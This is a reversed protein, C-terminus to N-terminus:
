STPHCRRCPPRQRRRPYALRIRHRKPMANCFPPISIQHGGSLYMCPTIPGEIRSILHIHARVYQYNRRRASVGYYCSRESAKTDPSRDYSFVWLFQAMYDTTGASVESRPVTYHKYRGLYACWLFAVFGSYPM